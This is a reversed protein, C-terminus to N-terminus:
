SANRWRVNGGELPKSYFFPVTSEFGIERSRFIRETSGVFLVGGPKLSNFFRTYLEEKAPETFYIVVNRCLILDFGTDFKDALLNGKQFSLYSRLSSNAKWLAGDQTFYSKKIESPVGRMDADSFEGRRAQDMAAMDIDTGVIKHNGKFKSDLLTALSYAEAGYSCGASWIKLSQTRSLLDPLVKKELEVWKDPNRYLESVNIALKDLFWRTNEESQTVWRGFAEISHDAKQEAMSLVRRQLQDQKYLKLDLGATKLVQSYFTQWQESSSQM